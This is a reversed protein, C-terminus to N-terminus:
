DGPRFALRTIRIPIVNYNATGLPTVSGWGWYRLEKPEPKKADKISLSAWATWFNALKVWSWHWEHVRFSGPLARHAGQSSTRTGVIRCIRGIRAIRCDQLKGIRWDELNEQWKRLRKMWDKWIRWDQLGGFMWDDLNPVASHAYRNFLIIIM